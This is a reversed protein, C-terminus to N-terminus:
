FVIQSLSEDDFDSLLAVNRLFEINAMLEAFESVSWDRAIEIRVMEKKQRVSQVKGAM